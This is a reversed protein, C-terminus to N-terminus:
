ATRRVPPLRLVRRAWEHVHGPIPEKGTDRALLWRLSQVRDLRVGVPPLGLEGRNPTAPEETTMHHPYRCPVRVDALRRHLSTQAGACMRPGSALYAYLRRLGITNHHCLDSALIGV